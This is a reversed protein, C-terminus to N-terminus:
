RRGRHRHVKERNGCTAMDCWRRSKNKTTDLFLWQCDSPPCQKLRGDQDKSFLEFAAWAPPGLIMARPDDDQFVIGLGRPQVVLEAARLASTVVHLLTESANKPPTEGTAIASGLLHIADRLRSAEAVIASSAPREIFTRAMKQTLTGASECWALLQSWTAIRDVKRATGRWAVTNAFDLALHGGVAHFISSM